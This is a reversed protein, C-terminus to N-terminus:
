ANSQDGHSKETEQTALYNSYQSLISELDQNTVTSLRDLVKTNLEAKDDFQGLDAVLADVILRGVQLGHITAKPLHLEEVVGGDHPTLDAKFDRNYEFTDNEASTGGNKIEHSSAM